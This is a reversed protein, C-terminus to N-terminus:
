QGSAAATVLTDMGGTLKTGGDVPDAVGETGDDVDVVDGDCGFYECHVAVQLKQLVLPGKIGTM